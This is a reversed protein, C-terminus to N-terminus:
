FLQKSKRKMLSIYAVFTFLSFIAVIALSSSSSSVAVKASIPENSGDVMFPDLNSYKNVLFLYRAKAGSIGESDGNSIASAFLEKSTTEMYNYEDRLTNWVSGVLNYGEGEECYSSTADLFYTAWANAQMEKTVGPTTASMEHSGLYSSTDIPYQIWELSPNFTTPNTTIGQNISPKRVLTKDVTSVGGRNWSTGPDSGIVGFIDVFSSTSVKYLALADNGNFNMSTNDTSTVGSPLSLNASSNKYVITSKHALTGSLPVNSTTAERGNAFVQLRYDALNVPNGTGNYIEVYKNNSSGEIYESFFLDPAFIPLGGVTVDENTVFVEVSAHKTIGLSTYSIILHQTGLKTTDPLQINLNANTIDISRQGSESYTASITIDDTIYNENLKVKTPANSVNISLLEDEFNVIGKENSTAGGGVYESDFAVRVWEPQDIFPNRNQQYNYYLLNNRTIEHESVPDLEHWTLLTALDGALGAQTPCSAIAAPNGNVLSLKPHEKDVHVYYRTAMYFMARAIDGKWEDAPEFVKGGGGAIHGNRGVYGGDTRHSFDVGGADGNYNTIGTTPVAYSYNSHANQNGKVDSPWLAHFDSGAGSERGFDGLSQPWIHEKDFSVRSAGPNKFRDATAIDNNYDAYMKIIYPNDNAYNFNALEITNLPSLEWNRDIIKYIERDTNSEYDYETHDKIVNYLLGVLEDGKKNTFIGNKSYYSAMGNDNMTTMNINTPRPGASVEVSDKIFLTSASVFLLSSITM